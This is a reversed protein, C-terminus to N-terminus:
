RSLMIVVHLVRRWLALRFVLLLPLKRMGFERWVAPRVM